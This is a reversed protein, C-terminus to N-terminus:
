KKRHRLIRNLVLRVDACFSDAWLSGIRLLFGIVTVEFGYILVDFFSM